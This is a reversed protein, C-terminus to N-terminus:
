KCLTLLKTDGLIAAAESFSSWYSGYIKKCRSLTLLEVLAEKIGEKTNRVATKDSCLIINRGFKDTLYKKTSDDDTAVYFKVDPDNNLESKIADEFLNLPSRDISIANDTRRIHLGIVNNYNKLRKRAIDLIQEKPVFLSKYLENPFDYFVFGSQILLPKNSHSYATIVDKVPEHFDDIIGSYRNHQLIGSLYFNKKRPQDYLFLQKANSINKVSIGNIPEFLENFPCYLDSNVPWIFERINLKFDQSLSIGSAIARMRNALGGIPNIIIDM